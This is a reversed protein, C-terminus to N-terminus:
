LIGLGSELSNLKKGVAQEILFFVLRKIEWVNEPLLTMARVAGPTQTQIARLYFLSKKGLPFHAKETSVCNTCFFNGSQEDYVGGVECLSNSCFPCIEIEPQVGLLGLYRWLFRLTGLRANKEDSLDIGDLFAGFLTYAAESDGAGQTKLIIEAALNAAWIKYLNNRLNLHFSEVDFDSIKYFNRVKDHYLYLKGSNFIQVLSRMKSKAGGYLTAYFIGNERSFALVSRNQEGSKEIGIITANVVLNREGM